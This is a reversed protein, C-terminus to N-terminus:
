IAGVVTITSVAPTVTVTGTTQDQTFTAPGIEISFSSTSSTSAPITLTGNSYTYNLPSVLTDNYYVQITEPAPNFTDSLTLNTAAVNGYNEITFNYTMEQGNVIPNPSMTKLIKIDPTEQVTITNSQTIGSKIGDISWSATNTITSNLELPAENNIKAKYIIVINSNAPLSDITFTISNDTIVPTITSSFEGNLYMNAPGIYNLPTVEQTDAVTYTGLNDTVTINTIESQSNNVTSLIYSIDDDLYYTNELSTKDTNIPDQLVATAINSNVTNKLTGYEYSLAAQNSIQTPM